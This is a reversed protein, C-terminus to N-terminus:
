TSKVMEAKLRAIEVMLEDNERKVEDYERKVEDCERKVEDCERKVEDCERKVEDYERKVEDCERKMDDIMLRTENKDLERLEKSFMNMVGEINLCMEYLTKYMPEFEPYQEILSLIDEVKDSGLFTLWADLRTDINERMEAFIDLSIFVYKQLLEMKLGTDSTQQFRHIYESFGKFLTPSTEFFVITYVPKVNSYSFEASSKCADRLKKYQRLLLDASYCASRQGPFRFGIKQVEVNIYSGDETMVVIDMVVLATEDGLRTSDTPLVQVIKVNMGLIVSLLDNLREPYYEPNLVEKFFADYLIKAGRAGSTFDLFEEQRYPKWEQFEAELSSNRRILERIEGRSKIMPFHQKLKETM